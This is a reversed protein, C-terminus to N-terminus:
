EAGPQTAGPATADNTEPNMVSTDREFPLSESSSPATTQDETGRWLAGWARGLANAAEVLKDRVGPNVSLVEDITGGVQLAVTELVGGPALATELAGQAGSVVRLVLHLLQDSRGDPDSM